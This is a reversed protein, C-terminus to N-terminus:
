KAPEPASWEGTEVGAAAGPRRADAEEGNAEPSRQCGGIQPKRLRAKVKSLVAAATLVVRGKFSLIQECNYERVVQGGFGAKFQNIDLLAKDTNGPYWGGFDFYKLGREQHRLMDCWFLYRNARGMANRAASDAVLQYLSAAHLLCSRRSDRYYVHYALPEGQANAALSLELCGDVALRDLLARDLSPLGKIAAFREYIEEFRDLTAVDPAERCECRVKDKDRARRIKYTTSGSMQGLLEDPPQTLDLLRTYFSECRAGPIPRPSQRYFIWDVPTREPEHDYWVEGRVLFRSQYIHM